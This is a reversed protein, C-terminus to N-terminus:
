KGGDTLEDLAQGVADLLAKRLEEFSRDSSAGAAQKHGGGSFRAALRSCDVACRSRFSIKFTRDKLESVLVAMQSGHVQLAMNVIDETDSPVAGASLLDDQMIRTFMLRGDFHSEVQALTRGVLRIRGLSEQEYLERYLDAPVAGADLLKAAIRLTEARVSSFRFWGTDTAMAVFAAEAIERDMPVELAEAAQVVLTGTAEADSDVFREAGIDDSKHHHDLVIKRATSAKFLPGIDALQAWASTDLVMVLDVDNIRNREEPTAENLGLLEGNPDLFKLTPPVSHPNLTYVTKGLKELIRKMALQSGLCDGDPRQHVTLLIRSASRVVDAFRKWDIPSTM